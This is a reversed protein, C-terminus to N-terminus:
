IFWETNQTTILNTPTLFLLLAVTLYHLPAWFLIHLRRPKGSFKSARLAKFSYIELDVLQRCNLQRIIFRLHANHKSVMRKEQRKWFFPKTRLKNWIVSVTTSQGLLYFHLSVKLYKSKVNEGRSGSFGGNRHLNGKLAFVFHSYPFCRWETVSNYPAETKDMWRDM